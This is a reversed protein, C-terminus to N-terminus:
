AAVGKEAQRRWYNVQRKMEAVQTMYTDRSARLVSNEAELTKVKDRLEAMVEMADVRAIDSADMQGVAIHDMLRDNESALEAITDYAQALDDSDDKQEEPLPAAELTRSKKKPEVSTAQEKKKGINGTNMVATTGHKTTFTRESSQKTVANERLSRVLSESVGCCRAVERNSWEVWEGDNLLTLVAKRKDENTRRLGHSANAGVSHLVADRKTGQHVEAQIDLAGSDKHAFLRHFGDALWYNSGDYFVTIPPMKAGGILAEAYEAVAADNLATRPQTGGKINIQDLKLNRIVSSM